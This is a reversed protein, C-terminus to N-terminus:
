INLVQGIQLVNTNLNNKSKLQEVSTNFKNAIKYLSDGKQVIYTSTSPIILKQGVVLSANSLNNTKLLLSVTTNYKNAIKYLSDGKKVTYIINSDDVLDGFCELVENKNTRINLIQGISLNTDTLTNDKILTDVSINYTNAIKYLSDGKKVTYSIYTPVYLEEESTYTEPIILKQGISLSNSSLNNISKIKDVTTNYSIAINYLTDGRKVTYIFTNDPNTGPTSPIILEQGVRINNNNLNNIKIIDQISVGFQNSIGYLTDGLKVIYTM